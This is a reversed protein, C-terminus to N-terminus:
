SPRSVIRSPGSFGCATTGAFVQNPERSGDPKKEKLTLRFTRQDKSASLLYVLYLGRQVFVGTLLAYGPTRLLRSHRVKGLFNRVFKQLLLVANVAQMDARAQSPDFGYRHKSFNMEDLFIQGSQLVSCCKGVLLDWDAHRSSYSVSASLEEIPTEEMAQETM